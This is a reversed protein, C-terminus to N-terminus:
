MLHEFQRGGAQMCMYLRNPLSRCINACLDPTFRVFANTILQRLHDLNRPPQAYVEERVIGWVSYDMATLDPSRPPWEIPGRRGIWREPLSEDLFDRVITAYHPPAGDQLHFRSEHVGEGVQVWYYDDGLQNMAPMVTTKLLERYSVGTIPGQPFVPGIIGGSFFQDISQNVASVV